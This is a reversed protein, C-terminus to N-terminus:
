TFLTLVAVPLDKKTVRATDDSRLFFSSSAMALVPLGTTTLM